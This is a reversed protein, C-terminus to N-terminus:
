WIIRQDYEDYYEYTYTYEEEGSEQKAAESIIEDLSEKELPIEDLNGGKLAEQYELKLRLKKFKKRLKITSKDTFKILNERALSIWYRVIKIVHLKEKQKLLFKKEKGINKQTNIAMLRQLDGDKVQLHASKVNDIYACEM